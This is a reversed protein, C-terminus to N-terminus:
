GGGDGSVGVDRIIVVSVVVMVVVSVVEMVVVSVVEMVVVSVVEMVLCERTEAGGGVSWQRAEGRLELQAHLRYLM